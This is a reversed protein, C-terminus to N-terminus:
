QHCFIKGCLRCHHRKRILIIFKKECNYCYNLDSDPVWHDRKALIEM